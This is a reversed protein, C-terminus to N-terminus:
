RPEELGIFKGENANSAVSIKILHCTFSLHDAPIQGPFHKRKQKQKQYPGASISYFSNFLKVRLLIILM